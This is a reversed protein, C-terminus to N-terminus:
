APRSLVVWCPSRIHASVATGKRPFVTYKRGKTRHHESGRLIRNRLSTVRRRARTLAPTRVTSRTKMPHAKKTVLQNQVDM